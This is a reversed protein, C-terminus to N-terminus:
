MRNANGAARQQSLLVANGPMQHLHEIRIQSRLFHIGDKSPDPQFHRRAPLCLIVGIRRPEAVLGFVDQKEEGVHKIAHDRWKVLPDLRCEFGNITGIRSRHAHRNQHTKAGPDAAVHVTVWVDGALADAVAELTISRQHEVQIEVFALLKRSM